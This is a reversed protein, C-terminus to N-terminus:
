RPPQEDPRRQPQRHDPMVTRSSGAFRGRYFTPTTAFEAVFNQRFTVASAFGCEAAIREISWTTTELLARGADLRKTLVWRAPTSGTTERFRRTFSRRSMCAHAALAAVSLDRDLHALAWDITDGIPGGGERAPIPHEIFQAQDGDRHPAVVLHRAIATATVAGLRARVIHLCADIASATGASTLVDGHDIYLASRRVDVAPRLRELADAAAWHTVATRGDLLGSAVVPFAGLCLGAIRVGRRHATRVIAVLDDHPRPLDVPWSPFVLLDADATAEPAALDSISVGESTRISRPGTTWVTTKWEPALGLEAATGFVLLPAALHFMTMGDFAYVAIKVV